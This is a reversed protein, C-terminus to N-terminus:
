KAFYVYCGSNRDQISFNQNLVNTSHDSRCENTTCDFYENDGFMSPSTYTADAANNRASFYYDFRTDSNINYDSQLFEEWKMGESYKFYMKEGFNGNSDTKVYCFELDAKGITIKTNTTINVECLAYITMPLMLMLIIISVLSKGANVRIILLVVVIFVMILLMVIISNTKPNDITEKGDNSLALDIKKSETYGEEFLEDPIAKRYAITLDVQKESKPAIVSANDEYSYRYDIYDSQAGSKALIFERNSDNVVTMRYTIGDGVKTFKVDIDAELNKFTPKSIEEVGDAKDVLSVNKIKIGDTNCTEAKVLVPLFLIILILLIKKM